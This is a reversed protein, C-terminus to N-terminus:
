DLLHRRKVGLRYMYIVIHGHYICLVWAGWFEGWLLGFYLGIPIGIFYPIMYPRFKHLKYMPYFCSVFFSVALINHVMPYSSVSFMTLLVLLIGSVEWRHSEFFFYSTLLNVIVFLSRLSTDWTSSISKIDGLVILIIFPQLIGIIVVLLRLIFGIKSM